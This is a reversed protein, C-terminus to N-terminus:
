TTLIELLSAIVVPNPFNILELCRWQMKYVAASYNVIGYREQCNEFNRFNM